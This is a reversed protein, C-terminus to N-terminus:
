LIRRRWCDGHGRAFGWKTCAPFGALHDREAQAIGLMGAGTVERSCSQCQSAITAPRPPPPPPPPAPALPPELGRPDRYYETKGSPTTVAHLGTEPNILTSAGSEPTARWKSRAERCENRHAADEIDVGHARCRAIKVPKPPQVPDPAPATQFPVKQRWFAARAATTDTHSWALGPFSSVAAHVLMAAATALATAQDDLECRVMPKSIKMRGGETPRAELNRLERVQSPLDLLRISGTRFLPTCEVFADSKHLYLLDGARRILPDKLTFRHASIEEFTQAPWSGAYRDSFAFAVKYDGALALIERVVGRLNLKGSSPKM